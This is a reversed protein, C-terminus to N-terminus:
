PGSSAAASWSVALRSSFARSALGITRKPAQVRNPDALSVADVEASEWHAALHLLAAGNDRRWFLGVEWGFGGGVTGLVQTMMATRALPAALM